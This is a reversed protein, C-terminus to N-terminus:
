KGKVFEVANKPQFVNLQASCILDGQQDNVECAFVALGDEEAYVRQASILLRAGISFATQEFLCKRTGILFGVEIDQERARAELGALAAVTQAMYELCTYVPVAQELDNFLHSNENIVVSCVIKEPQWDVINDLLIMPAKHPLVEALEPFQKTNM